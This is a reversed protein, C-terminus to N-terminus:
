TAMKLTSCFVIYLFDKDFTQVGPASRIIFEIISKVLIM